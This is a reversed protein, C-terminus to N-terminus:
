DSSDPSKRRFLDGYDERDLMEWLAEKDNIDILYGGSPPGPKLVYRKKPKQSTAEATLGRRMADNVAEKMTVDGKAVRKKLMAAVDPDLTLTTRM